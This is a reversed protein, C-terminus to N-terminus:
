AGNQLKKAHISTNAIGSVEIRTLKVATFSDLDVFNPFLNNFRSMGILSRRQLLMGHPLLGM